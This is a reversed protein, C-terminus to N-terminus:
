GFVLITAVTVLNPLFTSCVHIWLNSGVKFDSIAMGIFGVFKPWIENASKIDYLENGFLFIVCLVSWCVVFVKRVLKSLFGREPDHWGTSLLLMPYVLCLNLLIVPFQYVSMTALSLTATIISTVFMNYIRLSRKCAFFGLLVAALASYSLVIAAYVENSHEHLWHPVQTLLFSFVYLLM